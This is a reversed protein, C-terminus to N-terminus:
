TGAAAEPLKVREFIPRLDDEALTERELVDAIGVNTIPHGTV